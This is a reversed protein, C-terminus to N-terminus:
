DTIGGDSPSSSPIVTVTLDAHYHGQDFAQLSQTPTDDITLPLPLTADGVVDDDIGDSDIIRFRYENPNALLGAKVHSAVLQHYVATNSNSTITTSGARYGHPSEFAVFPDPPSPFTTGDWDNGFVTVGEIIIDWESDADVTCAQAQCRRLGSCPQCLMAGSGCADDATGATCVGDQMCGTCPEASADRAAAGDRAGDDSMGCGLALAALLVFCRM